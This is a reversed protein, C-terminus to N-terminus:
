TEWRKLLRLLFFSIAMIIVFLLFSVASAYGFDSPHEAIDDTFAVQWIYLVPPNTRVPEGAFEALPGGYPNGALVQFEGFAQLAGIVSIILIFGMVPRLGPLTVHRFRQWASAGDVRAANYLAPDISTLGALYLVMNFGATKWLMM